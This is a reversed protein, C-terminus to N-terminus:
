VENHTEGKCPYQGNRGYRDNRRLRRAAKYSYTQGNCSQRHITVSNPPRAAVIRCCDLSLLVAESATLNADIVVTSVIMELGKEKSNRRGGRLSCALLCSALPGFHPHSSAAM